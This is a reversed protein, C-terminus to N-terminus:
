LVSMAALAVLRDPILAYWAGIGLTVAFTSVFFLLLLKKM